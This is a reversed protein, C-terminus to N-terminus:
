PLADFGDAFGKLDVPIGIGEEPTQFLIFTAMKGGRLTKLLEDELAVEAYCGDSFCRMFNVRGIDKGDVNLGLGNPLLISLPARIRLIKSKHNAGELVIISLGIEPRDEAVVNQILGCQEAPAGSPKDCVVSWAGHTSKVTGPPQQAPAPVPTSAQPPQPQQSDPQPAQQATGQQSQAQQPAAQPAPPQPAATEAPYAIGPLLLVAACAARVIRSGSYFGFRM